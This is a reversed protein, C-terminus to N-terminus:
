QPEPYKKEREGREREIGRRASEERGRERERKEDGRMGRRRRKKEREIEIQEREREIRGIAREKRSAGIDYMLVELCKYVRIEGGGRERRDGERERREM